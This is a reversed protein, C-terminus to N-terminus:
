NRLNQEEWGTPRATYPTPRRGSAKQSQANSDQRPCPHRNHTNHITLYPERSRASGEDLPTSIHTHTHRDTQRDTQRDSLAILTL